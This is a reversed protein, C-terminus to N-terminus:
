RCIKWDVGGGMDWYQCLRDGFHMLNTSDPDHFYFYGTVLSNTLLPTWSTLSTSAEIVVTQGAMGSFNFGFGTSSFSSNSDATLVIPTPLQVTLAAMSSTVSGYANTVVM